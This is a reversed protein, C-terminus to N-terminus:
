CRPCAWRWCRCLCASRAASATRHLRTRSRAPAHPTQLPAGRHRIHRAARPSALRRAGRRSRAGGPSRPPRLGSQDNGLGRSRSQHCQRTRRRGELEGRHPWLHNLGAAADCVGGCVGGLVLAGAPIRRHSRLPAGAAQALLMVLCWRPAHPPQAAPDRAVPETRAPSRPALADPVGGVQALANSEPFFQPALINSLGAYLQFDYQPPAPLLLCRAVRTAHTRRRAHAARSAPLHLRLCTRAQPADAAPQLLHTPLRAAAVRSHCAM